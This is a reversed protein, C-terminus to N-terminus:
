PRVGKRIQAQLGGSDPQFFTRLRPHTSSFTPVAREASQIRGERQPSTLVFLSAQAAYSFGRRALIVPACSGGSAVWQQALIARLHLRNELQPVDALRKPGVADQVADAQRDGM